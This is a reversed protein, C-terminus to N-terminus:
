DWDTAYVNKIKDINPYVAKLDAYLDDLEHRSIEDKGVKWIQFCDGSNENLLDRFKSNKLNWLKTNIIGLKNDYPHAKDVAIHTFGKLFDPITYEDIDAHLIVLVDENSQVDVRLTDCRKKWVRMGAFIADIDTDTLVSIKEEVDEYESCGIVKRIFLTTPLKLRTAENQIHEVITSNIELNERGSIEVIRCACYTFRYIGIDFSSIDIFDPFETKIKNYLENKTM